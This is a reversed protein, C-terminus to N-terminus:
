MNKEKTFIFAIHNPSIKPKFLQTLGLGEDGGQGCGVHKKPKL